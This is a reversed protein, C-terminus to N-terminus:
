FHGWHGWDAESAMSAMSTFITSFFCSVDLSTKGWMTFPFLKSKWYSLRDLLLSWYHSLHCTVLEVVTMGHPRTVMKHVAIGRQTRCESHEFEFLNKTVLFECHESTM